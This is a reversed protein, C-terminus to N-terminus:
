VFRMCFRGCWDQPLEQSAHEDVSMCDFWCFWEPTGPPASAAFTALGTVVDEFKYSWAHSLFGTPKGVFHATAPNAALFDCYSQTGV